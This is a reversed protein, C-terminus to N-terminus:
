RFSLRFDNIRSINSKNNQKVKKYIVLSKFSIFEPSFIEIMEIM